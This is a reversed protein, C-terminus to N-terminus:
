RDPDAPRLGYTAPSALMKRLCISSPIDVYPGYNPIKMYGRRLYLQQAETNLPGTELVLAAHGLEAAWAELERLVAGGIGSGRHSAAVYMRKLEVTGDDAFPKFCGSGVPTGDVYAVVATETDVLNHPAFTTDHEEGYRGRLEVDLARIMEVFAPDRSTTRRVDIM